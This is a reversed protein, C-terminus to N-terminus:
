FGAPATKLEPTTSGARDIGGDQTQQRCSAGRCQLIVRNGSIPPDTCVGKEKFEAFYEPKILTALAYGEASSQGEGPRPEATWTYVGLERSDIAVTVATGRAPDDSASM